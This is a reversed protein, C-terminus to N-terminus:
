QSQGLKVASFNTLVAPLVEEIGYVEFEFLQFQGGIINHATTYLRVYQAKNGTVNFTNVYARNDTISAVTTWTGLPDNTTQIEFDAGPDSYWYLVVQHLNYRAGLDVYIW